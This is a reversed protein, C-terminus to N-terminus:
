TFTCSPASLYAKIKDAPSNASDNLYVDVSFPSCTEAVLNANALTNYLKLCLFTVKEM